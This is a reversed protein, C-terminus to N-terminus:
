IRELIVSESTNFVASFYGTRTFLNVSYVTMNMLALGTSNIPQFPLGEVQPSLEVVPHIKEDLQLFSSVMHLMASIAM